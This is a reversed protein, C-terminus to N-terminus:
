STFLKDPNLSVPKQMYHTDFIDHTWYLVFLYNYGIFHTNLIFYTCHITYGICNTSLIIHIWNITYETCPLDLTITVIYHINM